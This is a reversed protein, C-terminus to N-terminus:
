SKWVTPDSSKLNPYNGFGLDGRVQKSELNGFRRIVWTSWNGGVM